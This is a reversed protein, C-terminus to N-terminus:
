MHFIFIYLYWRVGGGGRDLGAPQGALGGAGGEKGSRESRRVGKRPRSQSRLGSRALM